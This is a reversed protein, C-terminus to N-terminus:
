GREYKIELKLNGFKNISFIQYYFLGTDTKTEIIDENYLSHVVQFIKYKIICYKYNEPRPCLNSRPALNKSPALTLEKTNILPSLTLVNKNYNVQIDQGIILEDKLESNINPYSTTFAISYIIGRGRDYFSSVTGDYEIPPQYIIQECGKPLLHTPSKILKSNSVFDADTSITDKRVVELPQNKLFYIDYNNTDLIADVYKVPNFSYSFGIATIKKGYFKSFDTIGQGTEYDLIMETNIYKYTISIQKAGEEQEWVKPPILCIDFDRCQIQSEETINTFPTDFKVLCHDLSNYIDSEINLQKTIFKTLYTDLILNHFDYKKEGTKIKIYENKVKM